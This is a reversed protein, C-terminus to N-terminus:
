RTANTKRAKAANKAKANLAGPGAAQASQVVPPGSNPRLRCPGLHVHQRTEIM